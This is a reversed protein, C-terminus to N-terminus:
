PRKFGDDNHLGSDAGYRANRRADQAKRILEDAETWQQNSKELNKARESKKGAVFVRWVVAIVAAITAGIVTLTGSGGTLIDIM